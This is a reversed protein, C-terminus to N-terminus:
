LNDIYNKLNLTLKSLVRTIQKPEQNKISFRFDYNNLTRFGFIYNKTNYWGYIKFYYIQLTKNTDYNTITLYEDFLEIQCYDNKKIFNNVNLIAYGKINLYITNNIEQLMTTNSSDNTEPTLNNIHLSAKNKKSFCNGM